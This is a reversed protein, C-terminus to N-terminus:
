QDGEIYLHYNRMIFSILNHPNKCQEAEYKFYLIEDVECCDECLPTFQITEVLLVDKASKIAVNCGCIKVKTIKAM